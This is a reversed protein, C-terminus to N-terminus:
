SVLYESRHPGTEFFFLTKLSCAIDSRYSLHVDIDVRRNHIWFIASTRRIIMSDDLKLRLIDKVAVHM